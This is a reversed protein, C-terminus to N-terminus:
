FVAETELASKLNDYTRHNCAKNNIYDCARWKIDRQIIAKWIVKNQIMFCIGSFPYTNKENTYYQNTQLTYGLDIAFQALKLDDRIEPKDVDWTIKNIPYM